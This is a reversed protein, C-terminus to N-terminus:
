RRQRVIEYLAIPQRSFSFGVLHKSWLKVGAGENLADIFFILRAGSAEAVADLAGLLTDRDCNLGLLHIVQQWPEGMEFQHGLLLISPIGAKTRELAVDCVLHTKGCGAEGQLLLVPDNVLRVADTALFEQARRLASWVNEIKQEAWSYNQLQWENPERGTRDEEDRQRQERLARVQDWAARAKEDAGEMAGRIAKFNLESDLSPRLANFANFV